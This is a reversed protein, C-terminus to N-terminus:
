LRNASGGAWPRPWRAGGALFVLGGALSSSLLVALWLIALAMASESSAPAIESLMYVYGLERIGFGAFSVPLASFVTVLPHVLFYYPWPLGLGLAQALLIITCIQLTHFIASIWIVSWLLRGDDWFPALDTELLRRLRGDEPLLKRAMPRALQWGAVVAAAAAATAAVLVGPLRYTGFIAMAALAMCVLVALGALRDFLVTNVAATRREGDRALYFSRVVDGGLTSPGFLNFFMATFYYGVMEGLRRGFGVRLAILHWRYATLVQGALYLVVAMVAVKPDIASLAGWLAGGDLRRGVAWLALVSV